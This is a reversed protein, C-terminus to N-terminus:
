SQKEHFSALARVRHGSAFELAKQPHETPQALGQLVQSSLFPSPFPFVRGTCICVWKCAAGVPSLSRDAM